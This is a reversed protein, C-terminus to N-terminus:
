VSGSLYTKLSELLVLRIGRLAGKQRLSKSAVPPRYNNRENPLILENLKARSLGTITCREGPKPLRIYTPGSGTQTQNTPSSIQQPAPTEKSGFPEPFLYRVEIEDGGVVFAEVLTCIIRRRRSEPWNTWNSKWARLDVIGSPEHGVASPNKRLAAIKAEAQRM